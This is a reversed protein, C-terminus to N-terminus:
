VNPSRQQIAKDAPHRSGATQWAGLYIERGTYCIAAACHVHRNELCDDLSWKRLSGYVETSSQTVAGQGRPTAPLLSAGTIGTKCSFHILSGSLSTCCRKPSHLNPYPCLSSHMSQPYHCTYNNCGSSMTEITSDNSLLLDSLVGLHVLDCSYICM